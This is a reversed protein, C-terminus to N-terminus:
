REILKSVTEMCHDVIEKIINLMDLYRVKAWDDCIGRASRDIHNLRSKEILAYLSSKDKLIKKGLKSDNTKVAEITVSLIKDISNCLEKYEQLAKDSFLLKESVKYEIREVLDVCLDGMRKIAGIINVLDIVIKKAKNSSEKKSIEIALITLNNYTENIKTENKLVQDLIKIDNKMLGDFNTRFMIQVRELMEITKQRLSVIKRLEVKNLEAMVKIGKTGNLIQVGAQRCDPRSRINYAYCQEFDLSLFTVNKRTGIWGSAQTPHGVSHSPTPTLSKTGIIPSGKKGCYYFIYM